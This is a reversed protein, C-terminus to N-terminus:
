KKLKANVAKLRAQQRDIEIELERRMEMLIMKFDKENVSLAGSMYIDNLIDWFCGDIILYAKAIDQSLDMGGGTLALYYADEKINYLVTCNTNECVEIIKENPIETKHFLPYAYNMMPYNENERDDPYCDCEDCHGNDKNGHPCKSLREREKEGILSAGLCEWKNGWEVESWDVFQSNM